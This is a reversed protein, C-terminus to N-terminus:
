TNKLLSFAREIDKAGLVITLETYTSITEIMNIGEWALVKLISYLVGPTKTAEEPIRITLSSLGGISCIAAENKFIEKIDNEVAESAIVTVQSIGHSVTIFIDKRGATRELIKNQADGLTPSNLFTYDVLNSRITIDGLNKLVQDGKPVSKKLSVSARKLAMIIAGEKIDKFLRKEIEPKLYRALSSFNVLDEAIATEMFPSKKILEEVVTTTSIM